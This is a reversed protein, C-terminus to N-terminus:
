LLMLTAEPSKAGVRKIPSNNLQKSTKRLDHIPLRSAHSIRSTAKISNLLAQQYSVASPQYSM